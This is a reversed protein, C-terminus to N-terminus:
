THYDNRLWEMFKIFAESLEGRSIFDKESVQWAIGHEFTLSPYAVKSDIKKYRESPEFKALPIRVREFLKKLEQSKIYRPATPGDTQKFRQTITRVVEYAGLVWLYSLTFFDTFNTAEQVGMNSDICLKRYQQDKQFLELDIKGLGQVTLTMFPEVTALAHSARIWREFRMNDM